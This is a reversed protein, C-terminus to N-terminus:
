FRFENIASDLIDVQASTDTSRRTLADMSSAIDQMSSTIQSLIDKVRQNYAILENFVGQFATNGDNIKHTSDIVATNADRMEQLGTLIQKSGMDLEDTANQIESFVRSVNQITGTINQFGTNTENAAELAESISARINTLNGKVVKSQESAGSALKRIEDAVVAFGRGSEGAHAAEIAANMALLNTQSALNAILVNAETLKESEEVIKQITQLFNEMNGRGKDSSDTMKQIESESNKMQASISRLGSTMQEIASSSETISASQSQTENQLEQIFNTLQNISDLSMTAKEVQANVVDQVKSIEEKVANVSSLSKDADNKVGKGMQLVESASKQVNKLFNSFSELMLNVSRGITGIEDDGKNVSRSRIDGKSASSLVSNTENLPRIILYHILLLIIVLLFVAAIFSLLILIFGASRSTALLDEETITGVAFWQLNNLREFAYYKGDYLFIGNKKGSTIIEQVYESNRMEENMLLSNDPHAIIDGMYDILFPFGERGFTKNVIRKNSYNTIDFVSSVFGKMLEGEFIFSMFTLGTHGTVPSVIPLHGPNDEFAFEEKPDPAPQEPAGMAAPDMGLPMVYLVGNLVLTEASGEPIPEATEAIEANEGSQLDVGELSLASALFNGMADMYFVNEITDNSERISRMYDSVSKYDGKDINDLIYSDSALARARDMETQIREDVIDALDAVRRQLETTKDDYSISDIQNATFLYFLVFVIVLAILLVGSLKFSLKKVLHTKM